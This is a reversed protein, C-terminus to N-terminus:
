RSLCPSVFTEFIIPFHFFAIGVFIDARKEGRSLLAFISAFQSYKAKSQECLLPCKKHEIKYM